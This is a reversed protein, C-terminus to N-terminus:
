NYHILYPINEERDHHEFQEWKKLHAQLRLITKKSEWFTKKVWKITNWIHEHSNLSNFAYWRDINIYVENNEREEVSCVHDEVIERTSKPSINSIFKKLTKEM